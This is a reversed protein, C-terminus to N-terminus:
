GKVAGLTLGKVLQKQAFFFLLLAPILAMTGAASMQGWLINYKQIFGNLGVPITKLAESNIFMVALLLENWAFIFAFIFTAAIGPLVLPFTIRFLTQMLGAGDVMACEEISPPVGEFFGQMMITCFPVNFATYAVILAARTDILGFRSFIVYLPITLLVFPFMQTLLFFMLVSGKGRYRFRALSYGGFMAAGVTFLGTVVSVAVSNLFYIPFNTENWVKFFHILTPQRPIYRIPREIIASAPKIATVVIWFIPLLTFGLFFALPLYLTLTRRLYFKVTEPNM